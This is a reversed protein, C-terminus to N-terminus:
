QLRIGSTVPIAGILNKTLRRVPIDVGVSDLLNGLALIISTEDWKASVIRGYYQHVREVAGSGDPDVLVVQVRTLWRLTTGEVAWSQSLENNPFVLSSQTNDGTKNITVGSFGFPLFTYVEGQHTITGNINFNQFRHSVVGERQFTVLNGIAIESM